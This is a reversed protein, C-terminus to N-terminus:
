FHQEPREREEREERGQLLHHKIHRSHGHRSVNRYRGGVSVTQAHGSRSPRAGCVTKSSM